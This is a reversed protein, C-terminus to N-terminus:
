HGFQRLHHDVHRYGWILWESRTLAGFIPHRGCHTDPSPFRRLHEVVAQRDREFDEPQTGDQRPNVEPVTAVGKPWQMPTHLAILRIVTRSAWTEVSSVDRGGTVAAFSDALHCLMEHPTMAGWQRPSTPTLRGLRLVLDEVTAPDSLTRHAM